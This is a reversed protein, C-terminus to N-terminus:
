TSMMQFMLFVCGPVTVNMLKKLQHMKLEKLPAKDTFRHSESSYTSVTYGITCSFGKGLELRNVNDMANQGTVGLRMM